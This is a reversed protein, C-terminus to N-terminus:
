NGSCTVTPQLREEIEDLVQEWGKPFKALVEIPQFDCLVVGLKEVGGIAGGIVAATMNANQASQLIRQYIEAISNPRPKIESLRLYKDLLEPTVGDIKLQLLYEKALTYAKRDREAQSM